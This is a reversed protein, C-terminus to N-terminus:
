GPSRPRVAKPGSQRWWIELSSDTIHYYFTDNGEYIDGVALATAPLLGICLCLAMLAAIIRRKM